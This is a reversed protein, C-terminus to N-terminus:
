RWGEGPIRGTELGRGRDERGRVREQYGGQRWGEGPIRGVEM